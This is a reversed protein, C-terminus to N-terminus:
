IDEDSVNWVLNLKTIRGKVIEFSKVVERGKSTIAKVTYKGPPLDVLLWPGTSRIRTPKGGGARVFETEINALYRSTKTSFVLKLAFPPLNERSEKGVGTSVYSIGDDTKRIEPGKGQPLLQPSLVLCLITVSFAHRFPYDRRELVMEFKSGAYCVQSFLI